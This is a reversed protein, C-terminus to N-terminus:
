YVRRSKLAMRTVIVAACELKMIEETGPWREYQLQVEEVWHAVGEDM